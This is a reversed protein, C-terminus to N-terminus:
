FPATLDLTRLGGLRIPMNMGINILLWNKGGRESFRVGLQVLVFGGRLKKGHLLV